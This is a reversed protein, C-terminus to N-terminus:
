KSIACRQRKKTVCYLRIVNKTMELVILLVSYQGFLNLQKSKESSNDDSPIKVRRNM